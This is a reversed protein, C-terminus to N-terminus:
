ISTGMILRRIDKRMIAPTFHGFPYSRFPVHMSQWFARAKSFLVICDKTGLVPIIRSAVAPTFPRTLRFSSLYSANARRREWNDIGFKYSPGMFIEGVNPYAALPVYLDASGFFYSHLTTVIGGMSAGSVIVKTKAHKKHYRIIAEVALISGAFTLQHHLFSDVCERLFQTTSGHKQAKIFFINCQGAVVSGLIFMGALKHNTEGSPHHFVVTPKGPDFKEALFIHTERSEQQYSCTLIWHLDTQKDLTTRINHLVSTFPLAKYDLPDNRYYKLPSLALAMSRFYRFVSEATNFFLEM